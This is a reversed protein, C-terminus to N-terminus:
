RNASLGASALLAMRESASLKDFLRLLAAEDDAVAYFYAAPLNLEAGIREILEFDPVRKGLEYRNMRTSASEPELGIRIGLQEQSLGARLRAEKIRKSLTSM